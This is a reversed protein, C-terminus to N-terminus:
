QFYWFYKGRLKSDVTFTEIQLNLYLNKNETFHLLIRYLKKYTNVSGKVYAPHSVFDFCLPKFEPNEKELVLQWVLILSGLRGMNLISINPNMGKGLINTHHSICISKFELRWTWKRYYYSYIFNRMNM